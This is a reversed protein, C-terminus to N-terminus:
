PNVVALSRGGSARHGETELRQEVLKRWRAIGVDVDLWVPRTREPGAVEWVKAQAALMPEDQEAFAFRRLNSIKEKMEATESDPRINWRTAAFNYHTTKETEPTLIHVGFYGTGEKRPKGPETVGVDLLFAAPANWRMKMWSDVPKGDQHFLMDFMGAPATGFSDRSVTVTQHGDPSDELVSKSGVMEANGLIGDHLFSVHSLDILNDAILDWPADFTVHDRRMAATEDPVDLISFDPIQSEDPTAEGMWIWMAQHKEVLPFRRVKALAPPKGYPNHVCQGEPGYELGHYGCVVRDGEVRGRSLPAMRHACRDELAVAQGDATRYLLVLEGIIKRGLLKGPAVDQSWSALYWTNRLFPMM